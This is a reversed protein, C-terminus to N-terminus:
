IDSVSIQPLMMIVVHFCLIIQFLSVIYSCTAHHSQVSRTWEGTYEAAKHVGKHLQDLFYILMGFEVAADDGQLLWTSFGSFM